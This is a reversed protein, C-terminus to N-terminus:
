STSYITIKNSVTFANRIYNNIILGNFYRKVKIYKNINRM